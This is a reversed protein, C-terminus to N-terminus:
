RWMSHWYKQDTAFVDIRERQTDFALPLVGFRKMERVYQRNPKFAPTGYRPIRDLLTKSREIGALLLKYDADSADKFV